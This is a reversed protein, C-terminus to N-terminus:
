PAGASMSEGCLRQECPGQDPTESAASAPAGVSLASWGTGAPTPPAAAATEASAGAGRGPKRYRPPLSAHTCPSSHSHQATGPSFATAM